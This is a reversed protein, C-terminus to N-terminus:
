APCSMWSPINLGMCSNRGWGSDAKQISINRGVVSSDHIGIHNKRGDLQLQRTFLAWALSCAFRFPLPLCLPNNHRNPWVARISFELVSASYPLCTQRRFAITTHHHLHHLLLTHHQHLSCNSPLPRPCVDGSGADGACRVWM